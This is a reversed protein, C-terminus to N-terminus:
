SGVAPYGPAYNLWESRSRKDREELCGMESLIIDHDSDPFLKVRFNPNDGRELTEQYAQAGKIPDVQTDKACFDRVPVPL